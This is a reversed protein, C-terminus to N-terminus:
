RSIILALRICFVQNPCRTLSSVQYHRFWIKHDHYCFSFVHDYFPKAKPHNKPTGFAQVFMEKMLRLYPYRNFARDFVLLPRSHLLCNGTMRLEGLTHVSFFVCCFTSPHSSSLMFFFGYQKVSSFPRFAGHANKSAM